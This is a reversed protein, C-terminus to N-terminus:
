KGETEFSTMCTPCLVMRLNALGHAVQHFGSFHMLSGPRCACGGDQGSGEYAPSKEMADGHAPDDSQRHFPM